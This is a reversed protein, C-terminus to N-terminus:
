KVGAGRVLKLAERVKEKDGEGAWGAFKSVVKGDKVFYFAPVSWSDIMSWERERFAITMVSDAHAENWAQFVRMDTSRDQPAILKLHDRLASSLASDAAIDRMAAQLAPSQPHATVVVHWGQPLLVTRRFLLNNNPDVTWESPAESSIVPASRFSLSFDKFHDPNENLLKNADPLLRTSFLVDYMTRYAKDDALKRSEQERFVLLMDKAYSEQNSHLAAADAAAFLFALDDASAKKLAAANFEDQLLRKYAAAIAAQRDAPAGAEAAAVLKNYEAHKPTLSAAAAQAGAAVPMVCLVLSPALCFLLAALYNRTTNM